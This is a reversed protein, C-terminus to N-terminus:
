ALADQQSVLQTKGKIIERFGSKNLVLSKGTRDLIIGRPAHLLVTQLRNTDSLSKYDSGHLVQLFALRGLLTLSFLVIIVHLFVNRMSKGKDFSFRSKNTFYRKESHINDSFAPGIKM